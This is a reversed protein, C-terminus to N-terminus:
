DIKPVGGARFEAEVAGKDCLQKLIAIADAYSVGLGPRQDSGEELVSSECLTRIIDSINFSSKRQIVVNARKPHKRILSIYKQGAPANFTINGDASQVFVNEKCYIPAGFLVIRPQGSRAAFIMKDEVQTIQELYFNKAVLEKTIAIDDLQRLNEYAALRIKPDNDRLLRRSVLVIENHRAGIRIADLAEIRYASNEDFAMERLAEL